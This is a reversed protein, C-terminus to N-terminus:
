EDRPNNFEIARMGVDGSWQLPVDDVFSQRIGNILMNVFVWLSPYLVPPPRRPVEAFPQLRAPFPPLPLAPGALFIAASASRLLGKVLGGGVPGVAGGVVVSPMQSLPQLPPPLPLPAVVPRM